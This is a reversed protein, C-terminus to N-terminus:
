YEWHQGEKAKLANLYFLDKASVPEDNHVNSLVALATGAVDIFSEETGFGVYAKMKSFQLPGPRVSMIWFGIERDPWNISVVGVVPCREVYERESHVAVLMGSGDVSPPQQILKEFTALSDTVGLLEQGDVIWQPFTSCLRRRVNLVFLLSGRGRASSHVSICKLPLCLTHPSSEVFLILHITGM